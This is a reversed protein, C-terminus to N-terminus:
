IASPITKLYLAELATVDSGLRTAPRSAKPTRRAFGPGHAFNSSATGWDRGNIEVWVHDVNSWITV